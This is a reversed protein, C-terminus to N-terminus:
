PRMKRNQIIVSERDLEVDVRSFEEQSIGCEDDREIEVARCAGARTRKFLYASVEGPALYDDRGYGLRGGRDRAPLGGALAYKALKELMYPSHTTLVVCLGGRVLRVVYKALIVESAPHLHAEPEEVVLVSRRGVVHKLYLALPAIELVSSSARPLPITRTGSRYSVVPPRGGSPRSAQVSGSLMEREMSRALGFFEKRRGGLRTIEAVLDSVGGQPGARDGPNPGARPAGAVMGAAMDTYTQMIASRGAPLYFSSDYAISQQAERAIADALASSLLPIARERDWRGGRGAGPEEYRLSARAAAGELGGGGGANAGFMDVSCTGRGHALAIGSRGGGLDAAVSLDGQPGIDVRLRPRGSTRGESITVTSRARGARVLGAAPSAFNREIGRRLGGCFAEEIMAKCARQSDAASLLARQGRGDYRGGVIRRCAALARDSGAAHEPLGAFTGVVSHLLRAAYSKGSNNPGIFITLPRLSISASAIPGFDKIDLDLSEAEGAARSIDALRMM